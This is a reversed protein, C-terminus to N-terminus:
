IAYENHIVLTEYM